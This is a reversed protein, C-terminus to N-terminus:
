GRTRNAARVLRVSATIRLRRDGSSHSRFIGHGELGAHRFSRCAMAHTDDRPPEGRLGLQRCWGPRADAVENIRLKLVMLVRLGVFAIQLVPIVFVHLAFFRSLTTGEIIPGGLLLGM